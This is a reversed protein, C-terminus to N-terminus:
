YRAISAHLIQLNPRATSAAKGSVPWSFLLNLKLLNYRGTGSVMRSSDDPLKQVVCRFLADPPAETASIAVLTGDDSFFCTTDAPPATGPVPPNPTHSPDALWLADFPAARLRSLVQSSMSALVTDRGAMRDSDLAVGLMSIFSVAVIAVVALSLVVELLTFGFKVSLRTKM